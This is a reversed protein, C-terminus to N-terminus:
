FSGGWPSKGQAQLCAGEPRWGEPFSAPSLFLPWHHQLWQGQELAVHLGQPTTPAAAELCLGKAWPAAEM